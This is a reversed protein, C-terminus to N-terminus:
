ANKYLSVTREEVEEQSGFIVQMEEVKDNYGTQGHLQEDIDKTEITLGMTYKLALLIVATFFMAHAVTVVIACLQYALLIGNGFFLGDVVGNVEKSAFCGTLLAGAIGGLGHCYFVDLSDDVFWLLKPKLKLSGYSVLVGIFGFALASIPHVFGAAPTIAVLGVVSGVAAGVVSWKQTFLYDLIMWTVFGMGAAIHTTTMALGALGNSALASGANFGFWGMWLLACGLMVFPVNHPSPTHGSKLDVDPRKGVIASAVLGSMGSTIHVVTGGAFDIAGLERLWGYAYIANGDADIGTKWASWVWHAVPDYVVTTWLLIFIVYSSFKMREVVAGSILSPTIIAFMM